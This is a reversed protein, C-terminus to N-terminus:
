GVINLIKQAAAAQQSSDLKELQKLAKKQSKDLKEGQHSQILSALKKWISKSTKKDAMLSQLSNAGTLVGKSLSASSGGPKGLIADLGPVANRQISPLNFNNALQLAEAGHSYLPLGLFSQGGGTISGAPSGFLSQSGTIKDSVMQTGLLIQNLNPNTTGLGVNPNFGYAPNHMVNLGTVGSIRNVM